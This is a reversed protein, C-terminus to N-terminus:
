AERRRSSLSPAERVPKSSYRLGGTGRADLNIVVAVESPLRERAFADAGVLGLADGDTFLFLVDRM